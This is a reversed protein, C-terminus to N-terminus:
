VQFDDSRGTALPHADYAKDALDLLRAWASENIANIDACANVYGVASAFRFIVDAVTGASSISDIRILARTMAFETSGLTEITDM